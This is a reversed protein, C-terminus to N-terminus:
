IIFITTAKYLPQISRIIFFTGIVTILMWIIVFWKAKFLAQLFHSPLFLTEKEM